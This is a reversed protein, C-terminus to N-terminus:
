FRNRLAKSKTKLLLVVSSVSVARMRASYNGGRIFSIPITSTASFYLVKVRSIYVKAPYLLSANWVSTFITM